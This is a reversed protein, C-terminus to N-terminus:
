FLPKPAKKGQKKGSGDGKPPTPEPDLAGNMEDFYKQILKDIGEKSKVEKGKVMFQKTRRIGYNEAIGKEHNLYNAERGSPLYVIPPRNKVVCSTIESQGDVKTRTFVAANREPLSTIFSQTFHGETMKEIKDAGFGNQACTVITGILNLSKLIERDVIQDISQTVLGIGFRFKRDEAIIKSIIPIQVLHAEDVLMFHYKSGKPRKKAIQHYQNILNGVTIRMGEPSLGLTDIFILCGEDMYKRIDFTFDKQAYMRRMTKNRLLPDIRNLIADSEIPEDGWGEIERYVYLDKNKIRNNVRFRFDPNRLFEPIALISHKVTDMMLAQITNKLIRKAETLSDGSGAAHLIVDAADDAATQFDTGSPVHLLNLAPFYNSQNTLNFYKIREKPIKLGEKKEMYAIRNQIVAITERSPDILTFGPHNPDKIWQRIFDDLMDIILSSKGMGPSGTLLFHKTLQEFSIRIKRSNIPHVQEGMYVGESLEWDELTRHNEQLHPVYGRSKPDQIGRPRQYIQHDGAPLHVLNALEEGSWSMVTTPIPLPIPNRDLLPHYWPNRWRYFHAAGDSKLTAEITNAVSRIVSKSYEHGSWLSVRVKFGDERGTVRKNLSKRKNKEEPTLKTIKKDKLDDVADEAREKISKWSDPSFQIDIMTNPRLTNLIDGLPSEKHDAISALPLGKQRGKILYFHGGTGGKEPQPFEKHVIPHLECNPYIARITDFVSSEKDQPYGFYLAIEKNEDMHIRFRFWPKGKLLKDEWSRMMSGFTSVLQMVKKSGSETAISPLLRVYRIDKAARKRYYLFVFFKILKYLAWAAVVAGLLKLYDEPQDIGLDALWDKIVLCLWFFCVGILGYTIIRGFNEMKEANSNGKRNGM